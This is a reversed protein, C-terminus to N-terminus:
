FNRSRATAASRWRCRSPLFIALAGVNKMFASLLAVCAVLAGVQLETSRLAPQLWRRLIEIAGSQAIAASLILASGILPLVPNAFGSFAREAPVIGAFVAVLLGLVGVLDYRIRDSLFLVITGALIALTLIQDRTM